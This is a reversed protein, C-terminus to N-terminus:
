ASGWAMHPTAAASVASYFSKVMAATVDKNEELQSSFTTKTKALIANLVVRLGSNMRHHDSLYEETVINNQFSTITRIKTVPDSYFYKCVEPFREEVEHDDNLWAKDLSWIDIKSSCYSELDVSVADEFPDQYTKHAMIIGVVETPKLTPLM